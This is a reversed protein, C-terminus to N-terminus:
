PALVLKATKARPGQKMRVFYVGQPLNEIAAIKSTLDVITVSDDKSARCTGIERGMVDYLSIDLIGTFGSSVAMEIRRNGSDRIRLALPAGQYRTYAAVPESRVVPITFTKDSEEGDIFDCVKTRDFCAFCRPCLNAVHELLGVDSIYEYTVEVRDPYVEFYRISPRGVLTAGIDIYYIGNHVEVRNAHVHGNVVAVVNGADELVGRLRSMGAYEAYHRTTDFMANWGREWMNYHSFIFTPMDSHAALDAAVWERLISDCEINAPIYPNPTCDIVIFHFGFRDFTYNTSDRGAFNKWNQKNDSGFNDHNGVVPYLPCRLNALIRGANNFEAFEGFDTLDGLQVAFDVPPVHANIDEVYNGLLPRCVSIAKLYRHDDFMHTIIHSDGITAFVFLFDGARHEAPPLHAANPERDTLATGTFSASVLGCLVLIVFTRKM